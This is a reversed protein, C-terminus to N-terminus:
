QRVLRGNSNQRECVHTTIALLLIKGVSDDLVNDSGETSNPPQKDNGSVRTECVLILRHVNSLHAAFEADAVHELPTNTFRTVTDAHRSLEDLGGGSIMDPRIPDITFERLYEIKLVADRFTDDKRNLWPHQFEFNLARPRFTRFVEVCVVQIEPRVGLKLTIGM